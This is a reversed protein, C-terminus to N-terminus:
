QLGFDFDIVFRSDETQRLVQKPNNLLDAKEEAGKGIDDLGSYLGGKGGVRVTYAFESDGSEGLIKDVIQEQSKDYFNTTVYVDRIEGDKVAIITAKSGQRTKAFNDVSLIKDIEANENVIKLLANYKDKAIDDALSGKRSLEPSIKGNEIGTLMDNLMDYVEEYSEPKLLKGTEAEFHYHTTAGYLEIDGDFHLKGNEFNIDANSVGLLKENGRKYAEEVINIALKELLEECAVKFEEETEPIKPPETDPPTEVDLSDEVDPPTQQTGTSPIKNTTENHNIPTKSGQGFGFGNCATLCVMQALAVGAVLVGAIVKKGDM